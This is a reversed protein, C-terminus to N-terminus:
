HGGGGGGGGRGGGGYGGHGGSHSSFAASRTSNRFAYHSSTYFARTRFVPTRLIRSENMIAEPCRIKLAKIVKASIGFATAYILYQEWLSLELIDREKMLTESNLFTYLGRWKAYEDQGLQTLLLYNRSVKFLYVASLLCGIGLIFFSGFALDLRTYSSSLNGIIMILIGILAFTVSWGTLQNKPAKYNPQQFYGSTVSMTDLASKIGQVFSHTYEYDESVKDQFTSFSISQDNAHRNILNFYREEIPSLQPLTETPPVSQKVYIQLNSSGWGRDPKLQALEIYGKYVLSLMAASFGDGIDDKTKSKSFVLKRAFNSDLDSPIDRFYLIETSPKYFHYKKKVRRNIYLALLGLGITTIISLALTIKKEKLAVIPLQEYEAQAARIEPLVDDSSYSNVSAFQTFKHKDAGFSVLSFEIYENYPKFKLQDQNLDFSFTHYGPNASNSESYPFEHVNTGYTHAEYNGESPMKDTPVLIQAKLSKLHKLADGSFLSLYLESSDNYRLAANYMEYQIEFVVTERYLGDVYFLLSEFNYEGDYPGESHFWKGPGFSGSTDTYDSDWWYLKPSETYVQESGDAMIQKVSLVSYDVKVGDVYKEPLDRWLEWFLNNSSKAHIDFTLRETIIVKGNSNEEDSVVAKYDLATIRAYDSFDFLNVNTSINITLVVAVIVILIAIARKLQKM